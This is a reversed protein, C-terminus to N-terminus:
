QEQIEMKRLAFSMKAPALYSRRFVLQGRELSMYNIFGTGLGTTNEKLIFYLPRVLPYYGYSITSQSPKAFTDKGCIKCELLALRIKNKYVRLGPDDENSIWSSGVFGIANKTKSIYDIVQMSNEAALVNSGFKEGRVVSDLLYRVTSTANKGDTVMTKMKNKGELLEKLQKITFVSDKSASNVIVCVADFALVDYQLRFSLKSEFYSSQERTLGKAVIILRTSDKELDRFCDAESKYSAIIQTPPYSSEYVKIQESIVPKFSEDSSIYITGKKPTDYYKEAASRDNSCGQTCLMLFIVGYILGQLLIKM